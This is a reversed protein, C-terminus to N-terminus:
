KLSGMGFGRVKMMTIVLLIVSMLNPVDYVWLVMNQDVMPSKILFNFVGSIIQLVVAGLLILNWVLPYKIRMNKGWCSLVLLVCACLVVVDALLIAYDCMQRSFFCFVAYTKAGFVYLCILTIITGFAFKKM